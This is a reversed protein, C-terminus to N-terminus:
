NVQLEFYRASETASVINTFTTNGDVDFYNTAVCNWAPAALNTCTL